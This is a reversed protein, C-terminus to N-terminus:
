VGCKVEKWKKILREAEAIGAKTMQTELRDPEEWAAALGRRKALSYWMWAKPLDPKLDVGELVVKGEYIEGLKTQAMAHGHKAAECYWLFAQKNDDWNKTGCCYSEALEYMAYVDGKDAYSKLRDRKNNDDYSMIAVAPATTIVSFPSCSTLLALIVVLVIGRGKLSPTPTPTSFINTPSLINKGGGEKDEGELPSSFRMDEGEM